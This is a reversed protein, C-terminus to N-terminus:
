IKMDERITITIKKNQEADNDSEFLGCPIGTCGVFEKEMMDILESYKSANEFTGIAYNEDIVNYIIESSMHDTMIIVYLKINCYSKKIPYISTIMYNSRPIKSYSEHVPSFTYIKGVQLEITPRPFYLKGNKANIGQLILSEIPDLLQDKFTNLFEEKTKFDKSTFVDLIDLKKM